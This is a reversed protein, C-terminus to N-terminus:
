KRQPVVLPAGRRTDVRAQTPENADSQRADSLDTAARPLWQRPRVLIQSVVTRRVPKVAPPVAAPEGTEVSWWEGDRFEVQAKRAVGRIVFSDSAALVLEEGDIGARLELVAARSPLNPIKWRFSMGSPMLQPTLRIKEGDDTVLLFELEDVSAPLGEWGVTVM